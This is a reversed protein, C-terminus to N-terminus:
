PLQFRGRLSGLVQHRQEDLAHLIVDRETLDAIRQSAYPTLIHRLSKLIDILYDSKCCKQYLFSHLFIMSM